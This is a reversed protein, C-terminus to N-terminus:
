RAGDGILTFPAWANPHAWTDTATDHTADNRIARMAQQFAEARSLRSNSQQRRITDVTIRSAVDDRVPWHSVLLNRAGAYFFARALGSLGPAGESGDGAATNCASLIVWDADLKMSSVESATLFGDDDTSAQVPPTFVLGPESAGTLEGAILGHTALALIRVRSLDATRIARETDGQQLHVASEPAKLVVRMNELEIATGPLRALSRIQSTDAIGTGSRSLEPGFVSRATDGTRQRAGRSQARGDLAPDGYGAFSIGLARSRVETKKGVSKDRLFKLSQVTPITILAHADAFWKTQRLAQSDGDAGQPPETVLIGFPFSSLVGGAAVFVHRKGVLVKEVPGILQQYLAHATKRDFTDGWLAATETDVHVNAGAQWLLRKVATAFMDADWTTRQWEIASKSIAVVHTGLGSQMALLVAEDPQLMRKTESVDLADTRAQVFHDPYEARLRADVRKTEEEIDFREREVAASRTLWDSDTNRLLKLRDDENEIRRYDLNQHQRVLDGLGPRTAEAALRAAMQEVARGAVGSIADQLATFTEAQLRPRADPEIAAVGWAAEAFLVFADLNNGRDRKARVSALDVQQIVGVSSNGLESTTHMKILGPSSLTRRRERITAVLARAPDLAKSVLAPDRIENSVLASILQLTDARAWQESLRVAREFLPQAEAYRGQHRYIVALNYASHLIAHADLILVIADDNVSARIFRVYLPEADAYQVREYHLDALARVNGLTERADPGFVHEAIRLAQEFLAILSGARGADVAAKIRANAAEWETLQAARVDGIAPSPAVETQARAAHAGGLLVCLLIVILRFRGRM